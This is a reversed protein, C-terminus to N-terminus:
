PRTCSSPSPCRARGASPRSSRSRSQRSCRAGSRPSRARSSSVPSAATARGGRRRPSDPTLAGAPPGAASERRGERSAAPRTWSRRRQRVAPADRGRAGRSGTVDRALEDGGMAVRRIAVQRVGNTTSNDATVYFQGFRSVQRDNQDTTPNKLNLTGVVVISATPAQAFGRRRPKALEQPRTRQTWLLPLTWLRPAPRRRPREPLTRPPSLRPTLARLAMRPGRSRRSSRCVSGTGATTGRIRRATWDSGARRAGVGHVVREALAGAALAVAEEGDASGAVPPVGVARRRTPRETTAARHLRRPSPM